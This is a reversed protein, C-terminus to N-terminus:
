ELMEMGEFKRYPSLQDFIFGYDKSGGAIAEALIRGLGPGIMFGQGCMGAALLLNPAERAYGVIPQGDPTMPYMGRWTRRVKLGRLRPYLELMRRVCLPLFSSTSDKDTGWVQPRPTICFVVQGTAAQYFYYNGSEADSRTDVLMPEMFRAVPETVGAEHCDPRVPIQVGATAALEAAQAGAADVYLGASYESSSSRMRTIRGGEQDFGRIEEGFRFEVGARAALAHFATGTMLTSAYGDGPSFTGGRLGEERIGPCLERVREPGVWDIGLGAAKQAVLLERFSAEREADYAVFLYGGRRWEVDLGEEAELSSVIKISEQCIRIKAPDSHTARLGGIAARNQGRGWSAERDVVCVKLGKKACYYALPVGVSGSGAIVLDYSRSM